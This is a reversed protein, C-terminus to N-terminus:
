SAPVRKDLFEDKLAVTKLAGRVTKKIKNTDIAFFGSYQAAYLVVGTVAVQSVLGTAVKVAM